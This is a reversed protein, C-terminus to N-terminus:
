RVNTRFLQARLKDLNTRVTGDIVRDGMTVRVGGLVAPDVTKTLLLRRGTLKELRATLDRELDDPLPVATVVTARSLGQSEEVMAAFERQIDAVHQVRNKDILLLLFHLLTAEVRGTFLKRVLATKEDHAVQPGELFAVLAPNQGLAAIVGVFSEAVGDLEGAERAALMLARAYRTEVGRDRM